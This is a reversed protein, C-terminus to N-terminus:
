TRSFVWFRMALFSAAPVLVAVAVMAVGFGFGLRETVLWVTASSTALGLASLLCFRLFQPGSRADMGFTVRAHGIYSLLVAVAFGALNAGQASVPLVAQVVLAVLVHVVTALGGVGAFRILQALM